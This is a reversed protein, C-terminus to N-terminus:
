HMPPRGTEAWVRDLEAQLQEDTLSEYRRRANGRDEVMLGNLRSMLTVAAVMAGPNKRAEALKYAARADAMADELEYCITARVQQVAPARLQVIREAIKRDSALISGQVHISSDAMNECNYAQRYADSQTHGSAVLQAFREQRATLASKSPTERTRRNAKPRAGAGAPNRKTRRRVPAPDSPLMAQDTM